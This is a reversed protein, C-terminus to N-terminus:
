LGRGRFIEPNRRDCAATRRCGTFDYYYRPFYYGCVNEKTIMIEGTYIYDVLQQLVIENLEKDLDEECLRDKIISDNLGTIFKDKLAFNLNKRIRM